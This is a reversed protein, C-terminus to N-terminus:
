AGRVGATRRRSFRLPQYSDDLVAQPISFYDIGSRWGLGALYSEIQQRATSAIFVASADRRWSKERLSEPALVPIKRIFRGTKGPDSDLFADVHIQHQQLFKLARVGGSGAGWIATRKKSAALLQACTASLAAEGRKSLLTAEALTAEAAGRQQKLDAEARAAREAESRATRFIRAVEAREAIIEDRFRTREALLEALYQGYASPQRTHADLLKLRLADGDYRKLDAPNWLLPVEPGFADYQVHWGASRELTDLRNLRDEGLKKRMQDVSRLPYHRLLFRIPFVLRGAFVAEHGGSSVLDVPVNRSHKWAKIQARDCELGSEYHLLSERVDAGPVFANSVPRFNLLEFDIANYGAEDVVEIAQVLSMGTWPSERFEDADAHLCWDPNITRAIVEKRALLDRWVYKSSATPAIKEVQILGRGRWREAEEVTNDTSGDDILYVDIGNEILDRIVHYIVDGENRAAIIAVIRVATEGYKHAGNSCIENCKEHFGGNPSCGM